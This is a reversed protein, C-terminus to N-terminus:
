EIGLLVEGNDEDRLILSSNGQWSDFRSDLHVHVITYGAAPLLALRDFKPSNL